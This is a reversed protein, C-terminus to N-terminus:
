TARTADDRGHIWCPYLVPLDNVLDVAEAPLLAQRRLERNLQSGVEAIEVVEHARPPVRRQQLLHAGPQATVRRDSHAFIMQLHTHAREGRGLGSREGGRVERERQRERVCRKRQGVERERERVCVCM